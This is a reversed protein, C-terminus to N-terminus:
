RIQAVKWTMEPEFEDMMKVWTSGEQKLKLDKMYAIKAAPKMEPLPTLEVQIGNDTLTIL